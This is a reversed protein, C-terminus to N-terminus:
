ILAINIVKMWGPSDVSLVKGNTASVKTAVAVDFTFLGFLNIAKKGQITYALEGANEAMGMETEKDVKSVINSRLLSFVAEQPFVLLYKKGTPTNILVDKEKTDVEINYDTVVTLGNQKIAFGGDRKAITLKQPQSTGELEVVDDNYNTIDLVRSEDPLALSLYTKNDSKNLALFFNSIDVEQEPAETIGPGDEKALVNVVVEGDNKVVVLSADATQATLLFLPIVLLIALKSM